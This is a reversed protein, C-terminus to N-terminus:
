KPLAKLEGHTWPNKRSSIAERVSAIESAPAPQSWQHWREGVYTLVQAIQEDSHTAELPPMLGEGYVVGDIPGSQGKLLIRALVPVNGNSAFWPSKVLPPALMKDGAPVGQGDVGHCAICLSEYVEKGQRSADSLAVELSAARDQELVAAILPRSSASDASSFSAPVAGHGAKAAARFALFVQASVQPDSDAVMASMAATVVPDKLLMWPEARQAAARRARPHTHQLSSVVLEPSLSALGQLTWLAHIRANVVDHSAAMKTLAPVALLQRQSVLLMQATDRWWGNPHALHAVLETPSDDLMTPKPGAAKNEPLIRYIRGHRVVTTMGWKKVRHYRAVWREQNQDRWDDNKEIETPFWTKEQIIGRYLDAVYLGGDPGSETWVPRFYADSSRMFESEAFANHATGVGNNWEFRSMRLLRGVPECTVANGYFEPMLHSRVVSQGCTASFRTLIRQKEIDYGGDSFDWVPCASWPREYGPAHEQFQLIPYGAPLQFSHAPNAGGGWSCVLRGDDDRAMGWQSIRGLAHPMAQLAGGDYRFRFDNSCITNDLNWVLGSAQHEINGTDEEGKYSLERRDSVGDQNDDFYSWISSSGTLSVLVRDGMPLITRPLVVNDIFVTRQDMRGDGDTDVLKVVRSVPDLQGTGHEDQMYTRWECVYLAGNGDFAMMAPEEVMPESAICDLRFGAPIEITRMAEEPPLAPFTTDPNWEQSAAMSTGALLLALVAVCAPSHPFRASCTMCLFYFWAANTVPTFGPIAPSTLSSPVRSYQFFLGRLLRFQPKARAAIGPHHGRRVRGYKGM